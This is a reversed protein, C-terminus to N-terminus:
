EGEYYVFRRSMRVQIITIIVIVGFLLWAMASAYGMKFFEFANRFLYVVYFLAATEAAPSQNEQNGFFMTYVESFLQLSAITNIILVFFISGSIMPVTIKRLQHWWSAGDIKAAEYLEIPVNRLAAVLIVVTGGVSWLM